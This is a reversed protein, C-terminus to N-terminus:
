NVLLHMSTNKDVHFNNTCKNKPCSKILKLLHHFDPSGGCYAKMEQPNFSSSCFFSAKTWADLSKLETKEWM